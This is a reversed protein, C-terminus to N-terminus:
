GLDRALQAISFVHTPDDEEEEDSSKQEGSAPGPAHEPGAIRDLVARASLLAESRARAAEEERRELDALIRSVSEM